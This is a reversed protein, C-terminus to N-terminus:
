PPWLILLRIPHEDSSHPYFLWCPEQAASRRWGIHAERFPFGFSFVYFFTNFSPDLVKEFSPFDVLGTVFVRVPAM